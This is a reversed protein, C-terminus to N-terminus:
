HQRRGRSLPLVEIENRVERVGEIEKVARAASDRLM